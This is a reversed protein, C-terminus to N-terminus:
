EYPFASERGTMTEGVRREFGGHVAHRDVGREIRSRADNYNRYRRHHIVLNGNNARTCLQGSLGEDKKAVLGRTHGESGLKSFPDHVM